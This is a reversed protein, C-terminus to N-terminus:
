MFLFGKWSWRGFWQLAAVCVCVLKAAEVVYWVILNVSIFCGVVLKLFLLLILWTSGGRGVM